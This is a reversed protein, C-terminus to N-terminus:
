YDSPYGPLKEIKQSWQEWWGMLVRANIYTLLLSCFTLAVAPLFPFVTTIGTISLGSFVSSAGAIFALAILSVVLISPFITGGDGQSKASTSM